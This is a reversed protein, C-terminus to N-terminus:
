QAMMDPAEPFRKKMGKVMMAERVTSKLKLARLTAEVLLITMHSSGLSEAIYYVGPMKGLGGACAWVLIFCGTEHLDTKEVIGQLTRRRM